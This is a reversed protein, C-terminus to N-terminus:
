LKLASLSLYKYDVPHVVWNSLNCDRSNQAGNLSSVEADILKLSRFEM